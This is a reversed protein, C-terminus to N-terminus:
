EEVQVVRKRKLSKQQGFEHCELTGLTELPLVIMELKQGMM